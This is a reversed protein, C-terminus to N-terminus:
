QARNPLFRNVISQHEQERQRRQAGALAAALPTWPRPAPKPPDVRKESNVMIVAHRVSTVADFVNTLMALEPTWTTLAPGDTDEEDGNAKRAVIADAMMRAHEEDMSIAAAFHSNGPLRDLVDLLLTWRRQRWLQGLDLGAHRILDSSIAGRYHDLLYTLRQADQFVPLDWAARWRDFVLARKWEPIGVPTGPVHGDRLALLVAQYHVSRPDMM